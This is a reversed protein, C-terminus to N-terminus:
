EKRLGFQEIYGAYKAKEDSVFRGFQAPTTATIEVGQALLRQRIEPDALAQQLAQNWAQVMDQPLGAPAFFGFWGNLDLAQLAGAALGPAQPLAPSPQRSSVGYAKLRGQQVFPLAPPMGSFYIDVNGAVVDAVAQSGGKYPVELLRIGASKELLLGAIHAPSGKGATAYSYAGPKARAREIFADLSDADINSRAVLLLPTVGALALPVFDREVDYSAQALLYPAIVMESTYGMLVTYGDPEAKAVLQAGIMGAAGPRNEIVVRQNWAQDLKQAVSRAIVDGTGGPGYPVVVKVPRDPFQAAAPAALALLAAVGMAFAKAIM